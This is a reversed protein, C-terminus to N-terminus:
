YPNQTLSQTTKACMDETYLLILNIPVATGNHKSSVTDRNMLKGYAIKKQVTLNGMAPCWTSLQQKLFINYAWPKGFFM